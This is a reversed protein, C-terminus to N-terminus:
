QMERFPHGWTSAQCERYWAASQFIVALLMARDDRGILREGDMREGGM